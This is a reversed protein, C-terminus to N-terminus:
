DWILHRADFAVHPQMYIWAQFWITGNLLKMGIGHM